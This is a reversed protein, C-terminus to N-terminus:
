QGIARIRHLPWWVLMATGILADQEVWGLNRSDPCDGDSDGLILFHGEPITVRKKSLWAARRGGESEGAPKAAPWEGSAGEVRLIGNEIHVREGPLG